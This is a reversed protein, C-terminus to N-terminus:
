RPFVAQGTGPGPATPVAPAGGVRAVDRTCPYERSYVAKARMAWVTRSSITPSCHYLLLLPSPEARCLAKSLHSLPVTQSLGPQEVSLHYRPLSLQTDRHPCGQRSGGAVSCFLVRFLVVETVMGQGAMELGM